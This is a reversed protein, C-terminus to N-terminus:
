ECTDGYLRESHVYARAGPAYSHWVRVEGGLQERRPGRTEGEKEREREKTERGGTTRSTEPGRKETDGSM